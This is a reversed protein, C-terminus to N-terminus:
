VAEVVILDGLGGSMEAPKAKSPAIRWLAALM